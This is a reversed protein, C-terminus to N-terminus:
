AAIGFDRLRAPPCDRRATARSAAPATMRHFYLDLVPQRHPTKLMEVGLKPADVGPKSPTSKSTDIALNPPETKRVPASLSRQKRTRPRRFDPRPSSFTIFVLELVAERHPTKPTEVGWKLPTLGRNQPHRNEGLLSPNKRPPSTTAPGPPRPGRHQDHLPGTSRVNEHRPRSSLVPLNSPRLRPPQQFPPGLGFAEQVPIVRKLARLPPASFHVQLM